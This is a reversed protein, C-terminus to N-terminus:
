QLDAIIGARRKSPRMMMPPKTVMPTIASWRSRVISSSGDGTTTVAGSERAPVHNQAPPDPETPAAVTPRSTTLAPRSSAVTSTCNTCASVASPCRASTTTGAADRMATLRGWSAGSAAQSPAITSLSLGLTTTSCVKSPRLPVSRADHAVVVPVASKAASPAVRSSASPSDIVNSSM